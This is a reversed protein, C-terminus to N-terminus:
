NQTFKTHSTRTFNSLFSSVNISHCGLDTKGVSDSNVFIHLSIKICSMADYLVLCGAQDESDQYEGHAAGM